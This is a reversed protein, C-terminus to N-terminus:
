NDSLIARITNSRLKAMMEALMISLYRNCIDDVWIIKKLRERLEDEEQLGLHELIFALLQIFYNDGGEAPSATAGLFVIWIALELAPGEIPQGTLRHKLLRRLKETLPSFIRAGRPIERIMLYLYLVAAVWFAQYLALSSSESSVIDSIETLLRHNVLYIAHSVTQREGLTLESANEKAVSIQRLTELTDFDIFDDCGFM